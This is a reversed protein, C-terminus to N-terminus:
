YMLLLAAGILAVNKSFNIYNSMKMNADTMKWFSHIMLTTPVLFLIILFLSLNTYINLLVGLGGFFLLLGSVLVASGPKPVKMSAAYGTLMKHNKFHNFGSILFYGGFFIRGLIHIIYITNM